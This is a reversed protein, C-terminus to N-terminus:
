AQDPPTLAGFVMPAPAPAMTRIPIMMPHDSRPYVATPARRRTRLSSSPALDQDLREVPVIAGRRSMVGSERRGVKRLPMLGNALAALASVNNTIVSAMIGFGMTFVGIMNTVNPAVIMAWSRNINRDLDHAIERLECLRALGGEIFVVQATDTALSSAGRLSISVDAKKLAISDNIGDGVFCVTRGEAQLKAVYDAKDAPLVQAFYRDM